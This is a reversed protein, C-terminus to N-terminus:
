RTRIYGGRAKNKMIKKRKKGIRRMRKEQQINENGIYEKRFKELDSVVEKLLRDIAIYVIAASYIFIYEFTIGSKDFMYQNFKGCAEFIAYIIIISYVLFRRMFISDYNNFTIKFYFKKRKLKLYVWMNTYIPLFLLSLFYYQEEWKLKYMFLLSLYLAIILYLTNLLQEIFLLTRKALYKKWIPRNLIWGFIGNTLSIGNQKRYESYTSTEVLILIVYILLIMLYKISQEEHRPMFLLSVVIFSAILAFFFIELVYLWRSSLLRRALIKGLRDCCPVVVKM